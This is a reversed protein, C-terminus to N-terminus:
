KAACDVGFLRKAYDLQGAVSAKITARGAIMAAALRHNGDQVLWRVYCRLVPVGVDVEIADSAENEVLFAM